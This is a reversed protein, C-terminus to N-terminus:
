ASPSASFRQECELCLLPRRPGDQAPRPRLKGTLGAVVFRPVNTRRKMYRYVLAPVIHSNRLEKQHGCLRCQGVKVVLARSM